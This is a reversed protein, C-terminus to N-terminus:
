KNTVELGKDFILCKSLLSAKEMLVFFSDRSIMLESFQNGPSTEAGTFHPIPLSVIKLGIVGWYKIGSKEM